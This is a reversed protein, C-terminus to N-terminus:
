DAPRPDEPATSVPDSIEVTQGMPDRVVYSWYGVWFPESRLAPVAAQRLRRVAAAFGGPDLAISWSGAAHHPVPEIGPAHAWGPQFAWGQQVPAEPEHAVLFQVGDGIVYAITGPEDWIQHLGLLETYFRRSAVIDNSRTYLFFTPNPMRVLTPAVSAM